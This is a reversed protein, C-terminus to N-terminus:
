LRFTGIKDFKECNHIIKNQLRAMFNVQKDPKDVLNNIDIWDIKNHEDTKDNKCIKNTEGITGVVGPEDRGNITDTEYNKGVGRPEDIGNNKDIM